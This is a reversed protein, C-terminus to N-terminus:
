AGKIMILLMKFPTLAELAHPKGAPMIISMGPELAHSVGEILIKVRGEIVQVLADFPATHESLRQARDFAFLTVTGSARNIITRSVVAQAQYDVLEALKFEVGILSNEDM